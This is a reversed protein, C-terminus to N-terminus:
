QNVVKIAISKEPKPYYALCVNCKKDPEPDITFYFEDGENIASPFTCVSSLAFVNNHLKGTAENKWSTLYLTTDLKGELLKITYNMCIGKIELRGKYITSNKKCQESSFTLLFLISLILTKM